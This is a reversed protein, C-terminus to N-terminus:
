LDRKDWSVPRKQRLHLGRDGQICAEKPDNTPRKQGMSCAEKTRYAPWFLGTTHSLLSRCIIWFLGLRVYPSEKAMSASQQSAVGGGGGERERERSGSSRSVIRDSFSFTLSYKAALGEVRSYAGTVDDYVYTV